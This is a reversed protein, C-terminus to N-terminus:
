KEWDDPPMGGDSLWKDLAEFLEAARVIHSFYDSPFLLICENLTRLQKLTENPDM